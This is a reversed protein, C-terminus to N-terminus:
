PLWSVVKLKFKGKMPNPITSGSTQMPDDGSNILDTGLLVELKDANSAGCVITDPEIGLKPRRGNEDKKNARLERMALRVARLTAISTPATIKFATQWLGFGFGYRARGGMLYEDYDFVHPDDPRVRQVWDPKVREVAVLPKIVRSTDMMYFPTASNPDGGGSYINSVSVQDGEAEGVPHDTDFFNQGDYCLEAHGNSLMEYVRRPKLLAATEGLGKFMPSYMGFTDDEIHIRKVGFTKEFPTNRIEYNQSALQEIQRPGIWERWQGIDMMAPFQTSAGVGPVTTCISDIDKDEKLEYAGFFDKRWGRFLTDLNNFNIDM